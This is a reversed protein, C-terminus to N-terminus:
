RAHVYWESPVERKPSRPDSMLLRLAAGGGAQFYVVDFAHFGARLAIQGAKATEAHQGDHDVVLDGDIRLKGGDDCSLFFTYLADDPVHVLGSLHLGYKEPAEDGRRAVQAVTGTRTPRANTVDDASAFVGEAYTYLLGPQLSDARVSVADHWQARWVREQVVAGTRGGNPMFLRASVTLPTATVRVDIPTTYSPSSVTPESGDITYHIVAGPVFTSMTVRTRDELVQREAM